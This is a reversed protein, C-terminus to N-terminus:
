DPCPLAINDILRIGGAFGAVLMRIGRGEIPEVPALGVEDVIAVYDMRIGAELLGREAEEKLVWARREGECCRQRATSLVRFLATAQRRETASLLKNRSSLALGDAERIIPVGVIEVGLDLDRNLARILCLQQFDKEGFVAWRPRFLALLKCVVTAVGRFHGPRSQGCLPLSLAECSVYTQFGPPYVEQAPPAYLWDIGVRECVGRDEELQRPYRGFDEHPGFQLPNVFLSLAAVGGGEPGLRGKAAEVLALHGAHLCGMTPVLALPRGQAALAAVRTRVQAATTLFSLSM